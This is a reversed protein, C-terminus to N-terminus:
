GPPATLAATLAPIGLWLGMAGVVACLVTMGLHIVRGQAVNRVSLVVGAVAVPVLWLPLTGPLNRATFIAYTTVFLFMLVYALGTWAAVRQEFSAPTYGSGDGSAQKRGM